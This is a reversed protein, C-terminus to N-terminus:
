AVLAVPKASVSEIAAAQTLTFKGTGDTPGAIQPGLTVHIVRVKQGVTAVVTQAVGRREVFYWDGGDALVVAASGAAESDVYALDGLTPTTRGLSEKTTPSTLREDTLREQTGGLTWGSTTFSYTIRTAGAASLETLKPASPDAIAKVAWITLNGSQDVAPPGGFLEAVDPM